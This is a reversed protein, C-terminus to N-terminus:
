QSAMFYENLTLFPHNSLEVWFEHDCSCEDKEVQSYVGTVFVSYSYYGGHKEISFGYIFRTYLLLILIIYVDKHDYMYMCSHIIMFMYMYMCKYMYMYMIINHDYTIKHM